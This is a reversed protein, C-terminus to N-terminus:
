GGPIELGTSQPGRDAPGLLQCAKHAPPKGIVSTIPGQALAVLLLTQHSIRNLSKPAQNLRRQLKLGSSEATQQCTAKPNHGQTLIIHIQVMGHGLRNGDHTHAAAQGTPNLRWLIEPHKQPIATLRDALNRRFAPIEGDVVVRIGGVREGLVHALTAKNLVDVAKISGEEADGRPFRNAHIGLLAQQQLHRPPGKLIRALGKLLHAAGRNPHEDADGTGIVAGQEPSRPLTVDGGVVFGEHQRTVGAADGGVPEGIEEIELAGAEGNIRGAGGGQHRHMQGAFADPPPFRLRGQRPAHLGQNVRANLHTEALGAQQRGITAALAKIGAGIAIHARLPSSGHQELGQRRRLGGAIRDIRHDVARSDVRIAAAVAHHRGVGPGLDGTHAGGKGAGADIGSGRLIHLGM